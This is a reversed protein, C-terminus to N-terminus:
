YVYIVYRKERNEIAHLTQFSTTLRIFVFVFATSKDYSAAEFVLYLGRIESAVRGCPSLRM